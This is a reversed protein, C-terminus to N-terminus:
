AEGRLIQEVRDMDAPRVLYAKQGAASLADLWERQEKRVRGKRPDQVKLEMWVVGHEPHVCTLDPYGPVTRRSDYPHMVLWGLNRAMRIVTDQLTREKVEYAMARRAESATLTDTRDQQHSKVKGPM